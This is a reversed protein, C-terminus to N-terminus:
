SAVFAGDDYAEACTEWDAQVRRLCERSAARLRRPWREDHGFAILEDANALGQRGGARLHAWATCRGLSQMLSHLREASPKGEDFAVRDATPQLDRLVYSRKGRQVAHLFAPPVGQCRQALSVVRQADHAWDPQPLRLASALASPLAQKVDILYHGDPAGKGRVLVVYREVGLRGNGAIRRAVDLVEFFEPRESGSAHREVLDTARGREADDVPLAKRGDIRLMRRRDAKASSGAGSFHGM